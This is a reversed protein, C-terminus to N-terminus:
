AYRMSFGGGTPKGMVGYRLADYPDDGGNGDDDVDVKLVDEPRHPDHQLSPICDILYRCRDFIFLRPSINNTPDGLLNLIEGAGNIRDVNAPSLVLGKQGYQEAITMESSGKHAFVDHGAVFGSLDAPSTHNRALMAKIADAHQPVLWKSQRHEDLVYMNGDDDLAMLYAVTPHTFGYDLAGWKMWHFNEPYPPKIVHAQESWTTFFQGAAIDWDGFRYARLRWGTNESLKREYGPDILKNDDITAPIFRTTTEAEDRYPRIFKERYWQHGVNGPNTSNYIRPRWNPKSTRNSDRLARYKSLTLTTAEEIAVADYEIGLYNDIDSESNFHGIFVRSDHWLTVVGENRNFTHPVNRLMRRRLDDFQERAQKGVKRLYLGKFGPIRRADDLLLQALIAHSKGPGRAGGFGIEDPGGPLDAQRAAAHFEFQKPQPVYGASLFHELQDAPCGVKWAMRVMRETATTM